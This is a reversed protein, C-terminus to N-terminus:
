GLLGQRQAQAVAQTRRETGLKSNINWAHAKVTNVSLCLQEAIERNSLGAAILQLITRERKSLPYLSNSPGVRRPTSPSHPANLPQQFWHPHRERLTSLLYEGDAGGNAADRQLYDRLLATGHHLRQPLNDLSGEHLLLCILAPWHACEELLRQHLHLSLYLQRASTLSQLVQADFGLERYGLQKVAGHLVLRPLSWHPPRRSSLWWRLHSPSNEILEQLCSNLDDNAQQSFDDLMLWLPQRIRAFLRRLAEKPEGDDAPEGLANTIRNLLERPSLDAGLLEIWVVRTGVPAQQACELLLASKGFGAPACLTTLRQHGNVLPLSLAPRRIYGPASLPLGNALENAAVSPSVQANMTISRPLETAGLRPPTM